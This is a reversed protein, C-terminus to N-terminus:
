LYFLFFTFYLSSVRGFKNFAHTNRDVLSNSTDLACLISLILTSVCQMSQPKGHFWLNSVLEDEWEQITKEEISPMLNRSWQNQQNGLQNTSTKKKHISPVDKLPDLKELQTDNTLEKVLDLMNVVEEGLAQTQYVLYFLCECARQRQQLIFTMLVYKAKLKDKMPQVNPQFKNQFMTSQTNSGSSFSNQSNSQTEQLSHLIEDRSQAAQSTLTKICKLLNPILHSKLLSDTALIIPNSPEHIDQGMQDVAAVREKIVLLLSTLLCSREYFFLERAAKPVNKGVRLPDNNQSINQSSIGLDSINQDKQHNKLYDEIPSSAAEVFSGNTMKREIWKQNGGISAEAFLSIAATESIRLEDSLSFVESLIENTLRTLKGRLTIYPNSRLKDRLGSDPASFIKQRTNQKVDDMDVLPNCHLLSKSINDSTGTANAVDSSIHDIIEKHIVSTSASQEVSFSLSSLRSVHGRIQFLISLNPFVEKYSPIDITPEHSVQISATSITGGSQPFGFATM